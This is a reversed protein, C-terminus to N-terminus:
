REIEHVFEDWPVYFDPSGRKKVARCNAKLRIHIVPGSATDLVRFLVVGNGDCDVRVFGNGDKTIRDIQGAM